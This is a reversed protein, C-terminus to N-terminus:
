RVVEGRELWFSDNRRANMEWKAKEYMEDSILGREFCYEMNLEFPSVRLHMARSVVFDCYENVSMGRVDILDNMINNKLNSVFKLKQSTTLKSPQLV